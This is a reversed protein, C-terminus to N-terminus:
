TPACIQRIGGCHFGIAPIAPNIKKIEGLATLGDMEPMELDILV